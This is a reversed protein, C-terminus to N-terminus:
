VAIREQILPINKEVLKLIRNHYKTNGNCVGRSQLVRWKSLSLEITEIREEGIYASLILSDAKLHYDNTFVCHHLADGELMVEKVSELVRVQILGDTFGIGFFKSKMEIFETEQELARKRAAERYEHERYERKKQVYRDHEAKLDSPCVYKANHLDKNFFRLLDIYDHWISADAITYGNRICIKVSAWYSNIHHFANKVFFQLTNIQRAKLLTEARSESLLTRLLDFPTLDYCNGEYGSRKLEPILRQRPYIRTPIVNYLPKDSRIELSSAFYWTNVYFGM